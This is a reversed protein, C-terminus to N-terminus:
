NKKDSMISEIKGQNGNEILINLNEVIMDCIEDLSKNCNKSFIPDYQYLFLGKKKMDYSGYYSYKVMGNELEVIKKNTLKKLKRKPRWDENFWLSQLRLNDANEKTIEGYIFRRFQNNEIQIGIEFSVWKFSFNITAKQHNVSSNTQLNEFGKMLKIRDFVRKSFDQGAVRQYNEWLKVEELIKFTKPRSYAAFNYNGSLMYSSVIKQLGSILNIYDNILEHHYQNPLFKNLNQQLVYHLREYSIYTVPPSIEFNPENLSLIVLKIEHGFSKRLIRIQENNPIDKVKNEIVLVLKGDANYGALDAKPTKINENVLKNGNKERIFYSLDNVGFLSKLIETGYDIKSFWFLFNSHFLEKSTLSLYFITLNKIKTISQLDITINEEESIKHSKTM